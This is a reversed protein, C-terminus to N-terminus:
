SWKILAVLLLEEATKRNSFNWTSGSGRNEGPDFHKAIEKFSDLTLYNAVRGNHFHRFVEIRYHAKKNKTSRHKTFRFRSNEFITTTRQRM